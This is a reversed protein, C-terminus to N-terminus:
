ESLPTWVTNPNRRLDSPTVGYRRKVMTTLQAHSSFGWQAAIDAITVSASSSAQIAQVARDIRQERIIRSVSTGSDAFARNLHRLTVGVASAVQAASLNPNSINADIFSRASLRRTAWVDRDIGSVLGVSELCSTADCQDFLPMADNAARVM